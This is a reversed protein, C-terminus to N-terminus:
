DGLAVVIGANALILGVTDDRRQALLADRDLVEHQLVLPVSERAGVAGQPRVLRRVHEEIAVQEAGRDGCASAHAASPRTRPWNRSPAAIPMCFAPAHTLRM